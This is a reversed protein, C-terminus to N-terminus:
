EAQWGFQVPDYPVAEAPYSELLARAHEILTDVEQALDEPRYEVVEHPVIGIGEIGRSDQFSQM